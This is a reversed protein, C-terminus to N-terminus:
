VPRLFTLLLDKTEFCSLPNKKSSNKYVQKLYYENPTELINVENLM